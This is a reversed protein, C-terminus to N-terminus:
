IVTAAPFRALPEGRADRSHARCEACLRYFRLDDGAELWAALKARLAELEEPRRPVIEFVSKQVREGYALLEDGVRKRIKDDAIDFCALYVNM